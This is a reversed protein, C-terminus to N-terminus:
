VLWQKILMASDSYEQLPLLDYEGPATQLIASRAHAEKPIGQLGLTWGLLLM